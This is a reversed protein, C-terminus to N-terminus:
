ALLYYFDVSVHDSTASAPEFIALVYFIHNMCPEGKICLDGFVELEMVVALTM